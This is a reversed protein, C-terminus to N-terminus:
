RRTGAQMAQAEALWGLLRDDVDSLSRVRVLHLVRRPGIRESRSIREHRIERDLIFGVRLYGRRVAIGGFHHKSVLNITGEVADVRLPGSQDLACVVADFLSRLTAGKGRFHDDIGRTKCSHAQNRRAFERRCAPCTWLPDARRTVRATM